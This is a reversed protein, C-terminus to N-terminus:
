FNVKGFRYVKKKQGYIIVRSDASQKHIKPRIVVTNEGANFLRGMKSKGDKEISVHAVISKRVNTMTRHHHDDDKDFNLPNENYALHLTGDVYAIIYSSYFGNDNISHQTKPVRKTWQISGDANFSVIILDNYYYNDNCNQFGTRPDTYCTVNKVVQEAVIISGGDPRAIFQNINYNFLEKGREAKKEGIFEQIFSKEFDRRGRNTVKGTKTDIKLFFTGGVHSETRAVNSYFGAALLNNDQDMKFTIDSISKDGLNIEYEKLANREHYYSLITYHYNPDGKVFKEETDTIKALMHVDGKTDLRYQIISFERNKYPLSMEQRWLVNLNHDIVKYSFKENTYKQYPENHYVLVMSSDPSMVFDFEGINRLKYATIEDVARPQILPKGESNIVSLYAVNKKIQSNYHSTFMLMKGKVFLIREFRHKASGSVPLELPNTYELKMDNSYCEIWYDGPALSGNNRARLVYSKGQADEGIISKIYTEREITIEDSWAVNQAQLAGTTMLTFVLFLFRFPM